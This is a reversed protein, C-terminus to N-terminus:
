AAIGTVVIAMVLLGNALAHAFIAPTTNRLRQAVFSLALCGPLIVILNWPAFLHFAAWLTGHVAWTRKAHVLEQRPLIYGRWWLEEGLTAIVLTILLVAAVWWNGALPTGMFETPIAPNASASRALPQLEIPWHGPPSLLAFSALWRSTFSLAGASLIMFLTLGLTWIWAKGDMRGLRFRSRFAHWTWQNGERRYAILSASILALMPITAYVFLYNFFIPLGQRAFIPMVAYVVVCVAAAPIGFHLLASSLPM